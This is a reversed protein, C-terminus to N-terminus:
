GASSTESPLPADSVEVDACRSAQERARADLDELHNLMEIIQDAEFRRIADLSDRILATAETVSDAARLCEDPVVVALGPQSDSSTATPSPDAVGDSSGDGAVGVVLGGLVVGVLLAVAPAVVAGKSLPHPAPRPGDGTEPRRAQPDSM